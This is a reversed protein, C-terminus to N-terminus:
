GMKEKLGAKILFWNVPLSTLFGFIMAIQMMFWYMAQNPHLPSQSFLKFTTLAMWGYMGVQFSLISFTDAKIAALIGAAVSLNRMPKITFYQFVIGLLWAAVFDWLYSAYLEKGLITLGGAFLAYETVIDALTCGAGCHSAALATQALTPGKSSPTDTSGHHHSMAQMAECTMTRGKAFYAWLGFVSLYLATILWVFNMIAMKQPHRVEDTAIAIASLFALGLSCWALYMM